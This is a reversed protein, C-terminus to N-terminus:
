IPVIRGTAQLHLWRDGTRVRGISAYAAEPVTVGSVAVGRGGEALEPVLSLRVSSGDRLTVQVDIVRQVRAIVDLYQSARGPGDDSLVLRMVVVRGSEQSPSAPGSVGMQTRGASDVVFWSAEDAFVGRIQQFVAELRDLQGQTLLPAVSGEGGRDAHVLVYCLSGLTVVLCAALALATRRWWRVAHSRGSHALRRDIRGRLDQWSDAPGAQEYVRRLTRDMIEDQERKNEV